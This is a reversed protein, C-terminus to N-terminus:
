TAAPDTIVFSTGSLASPTPLDFCFFLSFQDLNPNPHNRLIWDNLSIYVALSAVLFQCAVSVYDLIALLWLGDLAKLIRYIFDWLSGAVLIGFGSVVFRGSSNPPTGIKQTQRQVPKAVVAKRLDFQLDGYDEM